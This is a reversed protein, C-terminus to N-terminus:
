LKKKRGTIIEFFFVRAYTLYVHPLLHCHIVLYLSYKDHVSAETQNPNSSIFYYPFCLYLMNQLVTAGMNAHWVKDKGTKTNASLQGKAINSTFRGWPGSTTFEYHLCQAGSLSGKHRAQRTAFGCSRPKHELGRRKSPLCSKCHKFPFRLKNGGKRFKFGPRLLERHSGLRRYDSDVSYMIVIYVLFFFIM